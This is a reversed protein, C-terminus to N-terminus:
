LGRELRMLMNVEPSTLGKSTDALKATLLTKLEEKSSAIVEASRNVWEADDFEPKWDAEDAPHRPQEDAYIYDATVFADSKLFELRTNQEQTFDAM